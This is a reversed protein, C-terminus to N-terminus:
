ENWTKRELRHGKRCVATFDCYKCAENRSDPDIPFAGAALRGKIKKVLEAVREITNDRGAPLKKAKTLSYYNSDGVNGKPYLARLAVEAYVPIQVDIKLKGTEDKAGNPKVSSTKYDIAILKGGLRDIRDIWGTLRLGLWTTEFKKEAAIITSGEPLFDDAKIARELTRLHEDAQLEWNTYAPLEVDPDEEAARFAAELAELIATRQDPADLASLTALEIVKHYFSGRHAFDLAPELEDPEALNLLRQAFWRFSCQGFQTFQSVSWSRKAADIAIGAIGDYEDYVTGVERNKEIAFRRRADELVGDTDGAATLLFARREEPSAAFPKEQVFAPELGLRDFFPSKLLEGGSGMEAFSLTVGRKAALLSLCFALSEWRGVEAAEEFEIGHQALRKREYFDVAPNDVAHAPFHGEALGIVFLHDFSSGFISEPGLLEVGARSTSFPVATEWLAELCIARFQSFSFRREAELQSLTRMESFFAERANMEASDAATRAEVRFSEFVRDIYGLWGKLTQQEPPAFFSTDIGAEAWKDLGSFHEQRAKELTESSVGPGFRHMLLRVTEEFPMSNEITELLLRLFEGFSTHLAPIRRHIQIPMGFEAAVSAFAPAFNEPKRSVIAIRHAPTGDAILRKCRGLVGRVEADINEFKLAPAPVEGSIGFFKRALAAGSRDDEGQESNQKTWGRMELWDAWRRNTQFVADDGCPLYLISGDGAAADIFEIEEHRARFHGWILLPITDPGLRSARILIEEDDVAAINALEERYGIVIKALDTVRPSGFQMLDDTDIRTRLITTLTENIRAAYPAPDTSSLVSKIVRKLLYRSRLKPLVKLENRHLTERALKELTECAVNLENAANRHPTIVTLGAPIEAPATPFPDTIVIRM